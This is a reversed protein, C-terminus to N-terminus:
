GSRPLVCEAFSSDGDKIGIALESVVNPLCAVLQALWSEIPIVHAALKDRQGNAKEGLLSFYAERWALADVRDFFASM